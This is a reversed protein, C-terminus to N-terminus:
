QRISIQGHEIDFMPGPPGNECWELLDGPNAALALFSVQDGEPGPGGDVAEIAVGGM